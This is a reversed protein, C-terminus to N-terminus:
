KQAGEKIPEPNPHKYAPPQHQHELDDPDIREGKRNSIICGGDRMDIRLEVYKCDPNKVWTWKGKKMLEFVKIFDSLRDWINNETKHKLSLMGM